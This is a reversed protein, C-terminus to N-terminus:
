LSNFHTKKLRYKLEALQWDSENDIDQADMESVIWPLTNNCFIKGERLLAKARVLYFQGVDHYVPSLDQSRTSLHEPHLMRLRGDKIECGRQPPFSFPVVPMLADAGSGEFTIFADRLSQSTVFVATPYLCCVTDVQIGAAAYSALVELLVDSTTAFDDATNQSRLFPVKAGHAQAIAAIEQDETSVMTEEFLGSQIAAELPYALLPKGEFPRINKRPIRKSGGRAPIIALRM